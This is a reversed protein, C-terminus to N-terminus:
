ASPIYGNTEYFGVVWSRDDFANCLDIEIDSWVTEFWYTAHVTADVGGGYIRLTESDVLEWAIPGSYVASSSWVCNDERGLDPFDVVQGEGGDSLELYMSETSDDRWTRPLDQPGGSECGVCVACVVVGFVFALSRGKLSTRRVVSEESAKLM